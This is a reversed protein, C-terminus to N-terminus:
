HKVQIRAEFAGSNNGVGADNVALILRGATTVQFTHKAGVVIPDGNGIRAILEGHQADIPKGNVQLNFVTLAPDPHGDPGVGFKGSPDLQVIGTAEITVTDGPAVDIGTDTEARDGPVAVSVAPTGSDRLFFLAGGVALAAVVVAAILIPV